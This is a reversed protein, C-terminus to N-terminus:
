GEAPIARQAVVRRAEVVAEAFETDPDDMVIATARAHASVVDYPSAAARAIVPEARFGIAAFARSLSRQTDHDGRGFQTALEEALSEHADDPVLGSATRWAARAVEPHRDRLVAPTIVAFAAPDGIKSLTHLAQSRAQPVDSGVEPMLAAVAQSPDHRTLAWTLMDRVFFDGEVACRAVLEAVYDDHPRTGAALAAQLRASADPHELATRLRDAPTSDTM